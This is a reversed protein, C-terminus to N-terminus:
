FANKLSCYIPNPKPPKCFRQCFVTVQNPHDDIHFFHYLMGISEIKLFLQCGLSSHSFHLKFWIQFLNLLFDQQKYIDSFQICGRKQSIM